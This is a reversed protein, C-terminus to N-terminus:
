EVYERGPFAHWLAPLRGAENYKLLLSTPGLLTFGFGEYVSRVFDDHGAEGTFASGPFPGLAWVFMFVGSAAVAPLLFEERSMGGHDELGGGFEEGSMHDELGGGFEDRSRGGDELGGGSLGGGENRPSSSPTHPPESNLAMM